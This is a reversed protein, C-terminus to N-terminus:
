GKLRDLLNIERCNESMRRWDAAAAGGVPAGSRAFRAWVGQMFATLAAQREGTGRKGAFFPHGGHGGGGTRGARGAAFRSLGPGIGCRASDNDALINKIHENL